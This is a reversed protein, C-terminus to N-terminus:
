RKNLTGKIKTGNTLLKGSYSASSAFEVGQKSNNRLLLNNFNLTGGWIKQPTKGIIEVNQPNNVSASSLYLDGYLKYTGTGSLKASTIVTDNGFSVEGNNVFDSFNSINAYGKAILKSTEDVTIKYSSTGKLELMGGIELIAGDTLTINGGSISLKDDIVVHKGSLKLGSATTYSPYNIETDEENELINYNIKSIDLKAGSNHYEKAININTKLNVTGKGDINLTDCSITGGSITNIVKNIINLTKVSTTGTNNYDGKVTLTNATIAGNGTFDSFATINGSGTIKAYNTAPGEIILEGTEPISISGSSASFSEKVTCKGNISTNTQAIELKKVTTGLPSNIQGSTLYVTGNVTKPLTGSFGNLTIDGNHKDGSFSSNKQMVINKGNTINGGTKYEGTINIPNNLIVKFAESVDLDKTNVTGSINNVIKGKICFTNVSTTGTNNYDGNVTLANATIAGNGTFDSIATINGSGTIKAYNTAPGEIILEGTEPISISGSSASFSEKVTCKGNISTNTQAIELKKVTTGLPSNIQGSTLYVTGNVTKPLAGSFGNLTIDGNHTDGSFSSNKQMVINKGNTINGGTKCEGSVNVTGNINANKANQIDLSNTEINCQIKQPKDGQISLGNINLPKGSILDGNVCLTSVGANVTGDFVMDGYVTIPSRLTLTGGTQHLSGRIDANSLEATGQVDTSGNIRIPSTFTVGNLTIGNNLYGNEIIAGPNLIINTGYLVTSHQNAVSGTVTVKGNVSVPEDNRFRLTKIKGNGSLNGHINIAGNISGNIKSEGFVNIDSESTIVSSAAVDLDGNINLNVNRSINLAKGALDLMCNVNFDSNDDSAPIVTVTGASSEVTLNEVTIDGFLKVNGKEVALAGITAKGKLAAINTDGSIIAFPIYVEDDTNLYIANSGSCMVGGSLRGIKNYGFDTSYKEGSALSIYTSTNYETNFLSAALLADKYYTCYAEVDEANTFDNRSMLNPLNAFLKSLNINGGTKLPDKDEVLAKHYGEILEIQRLKIKKILQLDDLIKKANEDTMSSTYATLDDSFARRACNLIEDTYQYEIMKNVIDGTNLFTDDILTGLTTGIKVIAFATGAQSIVYQTNASASSVIKNKIKKSFKNLGTLKKFLDAPDSILGNKSATQIKDFISLTHEATERQMIRNYSDLASKLDNGAYPELRSFTDTVDKATELKTDIDELTNLMADFKNIGDVVGSAFEGLINKANKAKRQREMRIYWEDFFGGDFTLDDYGAMKYVDANFEAIALQRTRPSLNNKYQKTFDNLYKEADLQLQPMFIDDFNKRVAASNKSMLTEAYKQYLEDGIIKRLAERNDQAVAADIQSIVTKADKALTKFSKRMETHKKIDAIVSEESNLSYGLAKSNYKVDLIKALAGEMKTEGITKHTDEVFGKVEDAGWINLFREELNKCLEEIESAAMKDYNKFVDYTYILSRTLTDNEIKDSITSTIPVYNADRYINNGTSEVYKVYENSSLDDNLITDIVWRRSSIVNKLIEVNPQTEAEGNEEAASCIPVFNLMLALINIVTIIKLWKHKFLGLVEKKENEIMVADFLHTIHIEFGYM